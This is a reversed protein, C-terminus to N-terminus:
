ENHEEHNYNELQKEIGSIKNELIKLYNFVGIVSDYVTENENLAPDQRLIGINANKMISVNGSDCNLEGTIIKLLTTKGAGNVGIIGIKDNDQVSFSVEKLIEKVGISFSINNCNLIIM